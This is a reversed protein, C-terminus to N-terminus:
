VTRGVDLPHAPVSPSRSSRSSSIRSAIPSTRSFSVISRIREDRSRTTISERDGTSRRDHIVRDRSNANEDIKRLTSAHGIPSRDFPISEEDAPKGTSTAGFRALAQGERCWVRLMCKLLEELAQKLTADEDVEATCESSCASNCVMTGNDVFRSTTASRTARSSGRRANRGKGKEKEKREEGGGEERARARAQRERRACPAISPSLYPASSSPSALTCVAAFVGFKRLVSGAAEHFAVRRGSGSVAPWFSRRRTVVGGTGEVGPRGRPEGGRPESV